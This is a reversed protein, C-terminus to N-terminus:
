GLIEKVIRALTAGDASTGVEQKVAGIVQGMATTGSVGLDTVKKAVIERLEEETLQKPLYKKLIESEKEETEALEPRGGQRYLTASEGRKKVEKAILQEIAADDIGEDRLGKAVEENLIVAKLGRLVDAVFRDGGLLAAKLDYTIRQKLAM